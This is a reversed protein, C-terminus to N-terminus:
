LVEGCGLAEALPPAEGVMGDLDGLASEGVTAALASQQAVGLMSFWRTAWAARAATRLLPAAEEARHAALARVLAVCTDSVPAAGLTASASAVTVSSADPEALLQSIM